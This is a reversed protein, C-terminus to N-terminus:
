PLMKLMQELEQMDTVLVERSKSGKAAGVIGAAELQDIIRSARNFGVELKRQIYSASGQNKMVTLRAAEDFLVDRKVLDVEREDEEGEAIYEPLEYVDPYSQQKSIHALVEELEPTDIFACQMRVPDAGTTYLMDGRGILKNAGPRDIITRSDVMQSVRFAIRAPFNAKIVGTIINTSPRQTAIIMHIGVARALQAIRAIPKEVEKGATMILDAFEDVVVVIYPLYKHGNEPNLKRNIFKTNYEIVNRTHASKLLNYRQDMEICLSNLTNVVKGTDNIIIEDTNPEKALYHKQIVDYLSLEVKKPDVMVFKLESPHMKYLLSAIIANLGVSKGQGTAGAMLLHPAKALDFVFVKNDITKGIAVPLAANSNQYEESALISKMGVLKPHKNAVEIGVTGKGPIPAIIRIGEAALSLSLDDELVKIKNVRTGKKPVVEYLTITAGITAKIREITIGYHAFTQVIKEQNKRLEDDDVHDSNEEFSKLLDLNPTQYLSLEKKPDYPETLDEHEEEEEDVSEANPILNEPNETTTTAEAQQPKTPEVRTVEMKVASPQSSTPQEQDPQGGEPSLLVTTSASNTQPTIIDDDASTVLTEDTDFTNESPVDSERSLPANQYLYQEPLGFKQILSNYLNQTFHHFLYLMCAAFFTLMLFWAGVVGFNFVIFDAMYKGHAGALLLSSDELLMGLLLSVFVGGLLVLKAIKILSTRALGSNPLFKFSVVGLLLIWLISILGFLNRVLLHAIGFGLRGGINQAKYETQFVLEFFGLHAISEDAKWNSFYSIVVVLLYCSTLLGLAALVYKTKDSPSKM